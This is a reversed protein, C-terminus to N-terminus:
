APSGGVSQGDPSVKRWTEGEDDSRYIEGGIMGRSSRHEMLERYREEDSIGEKNANEITTYVINPNSESFDVGIRGLMGGPLGNELMRWTEGGDTSKYLRSGPGGLDF